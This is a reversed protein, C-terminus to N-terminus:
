HISLFYINFYASRNSKFKTETIDRFLLNQLYFEDRSSYGCIKELQPLYSFVFIQKIKPQNQNRNLIQCINAFFFLTKNGTYIFFVHCIDKQLTSKQIESFPLLLCEPPLIYNPELQGIFFYLKQTINKRIHLNSQYLSKNLTEYNCVDHLADYM